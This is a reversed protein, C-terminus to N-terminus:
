EKEPPIIKKKTLEPVVLEVIEHNVQKVSSPDIVEGIGTWIMHGGEGTTWVNVEHRVVRSTELYGTHYMQDYFMFYGRHWRYPAYYPMAMVYGPVYTTVRETALRSITIVGDYGKDKTAEIVQNTDPLDKPFVQYSPTVTVGHKGLESSFGTEWIRRNEANKNVAIVLVNKMSGSQYAPDVWLNSLYSTACSSFVLAGSFVSIPLIANRVISTIKM